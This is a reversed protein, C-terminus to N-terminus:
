EETHLKLEELSFCFVTATKHAVGSKTMKMIKPRISGYSHDLSHFFGVEENPGALGNNVKVAVKTGPVIGMDSLRRKHANILAHLLKSRESSNASVAKEIEEIEKNM